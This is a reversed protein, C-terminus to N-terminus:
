KKGGKEDFTFDKTQEVITKDIVINNLVPRGGVVAYGLVVPMNVFKVLEDYSCGFFREVDRFKIKLQECSCGVFGNIGPENNLIHVMVNDYAIAQSGGTPTFEGTKREYGMITIMKKSGKM